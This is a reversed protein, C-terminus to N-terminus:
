VEPQWPVVTNKLSNYNQQKELYKLNGETLTKLNLQHKIKFVFHFLMDFILLFVLILKKFIQLKRNQSFQKTNELTYLFYKNYM